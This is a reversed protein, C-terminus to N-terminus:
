HHTSYKDLYVLYGTGAPILNGLIVNEKLGNLYDTKRSLAAKTLVRTTQQFSAASLFSKVELSAKTIGLVIPEYLIKPRIDKNILEIDYLDCLEGPLYGTTGGFTIRVKSTMQKVIVELHKDAITVGQSRYVRQVGDIIIQQIKYFSQRVAQDRPLKTNYRNFIAKLLNELSDRFLRGRKTTRAEFFQEIKPIGQVIDGTKLQQYALTIVSTQEDIFDGDYKHLIAQPSVFIPQGKRLTVKYNNIHIIQGSKTIAFAPNIKDGYVLFEGILLKSRQQALGAPIKNLELTGSKALMSKTTKINLENERDISHRHGEPMSESSGLNNTLETAEDIGLPGLSLFGSFLEDIEFKSSDGSDETKSTKDINQKQGEPQSSLESSQQPEADPKTETILLNLLNIVINNIFYQNEKKQNELSYYIEKYNQNFPKIQKGSFVEQRRSPSLNYCVQDNKTLVMCGYEVHDVPKTSLFFDTFKQRILKNSTLSTSQQTKTGQKSLGLTGDIDLPYLYPSEGYASSEVAMKTLPKKQYILEGKISSYAYTKMIPIQSNVSNDIYSVFDTKYLAKKITLALEENPQTFRSFSNNSTPSGSALSGLLPGNRGFLFKKNNSNNLFLNQKRLYRNNLIAFTQIDLPSSKTSFSQQNRVDSMDLISSPISKPFENVLSYEVIPSLFISSLNSFNKGVEFLNPKFNGQSWAAKNYAHQGGPMLAERKKKSIAFPMASVFSKSFLNNIKYIYNSLLQKLTTYELSKLRKYRTKPIITQFTKLNDIKTKNSPAFGMSATKNVLDWPNNFIFSPQYQQSFFCMPTKFPFNISYPAKYSIIFPSLNISKLSTMMLSPHGLIRVKDFLSNNKLMTFNNTKREKLLSNQMEAHSNQNFDIGKSDFKLMDRVEGSGVSNYDQLKNIGQLRHGKHMVTQGSSHQPHNQKFFIAHTKTEKQLNSNKLFYDMNKPYLSNNFIIKLQSSGYKSLNKGTTKQKNLLGTQYNSYLRISHFSQNLMKRKLKRTQFILYAKRHESTKVKNHKARNQSIKNLKLKAPCCQQWSPNQGLRLSYIDKKYEVEKVFQYEFAKRILIIYNTQKHEKSMSTVNINRTLISQPQSDKNQQRKEIKFRCNKNLITQSFDLEIIKKSQSKDDLNPKIEKIITIKNDKQFSKLWEQEKIVVKKNLAIHGQIVKLNDGESISLPEPKKSIFNPNASSTSFKTELLLDTVLSKQQCSPGQDLCVKKLPIIELYVPNKDFSFHSDINTGPQIIKKNYLFFKTLDTTYYFYGNTLWLNINTEEESHTKINHHQGGPMLAERKKKSM